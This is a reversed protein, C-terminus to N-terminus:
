SRENLLKILDTAIKAHGAINPHAFNPRIYQKVQTHQIAWQDNTLRPNDDAIVSGYENDIYTLISQAICQGRPLLWSEAPVCDIVSNNETTFLNLFYCKLNLHKCWLWLLNVVNDYNYVRQFPNDFYKYWKLSYPHPQHVQYTSNLINKFDGHEDFMGTRNSATLCFFVTDETSITNIRQSLELPLSNICSGKKGYNICTAGFHDSVLTPFSHLYPSDLEDGFVWSDGFWHFKM